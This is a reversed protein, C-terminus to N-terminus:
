VCVCVCTMDKEEVEDEDLPDVMEKPRPDVGVVTLVRKAGVGKKM